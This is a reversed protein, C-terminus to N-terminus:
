VNAKIQSHVQRMGYVLCTLPYLYGQDPYKPLNELPPPQSFDVLTIDVDKPKVHADVFEICTWFDCPGFGYPRLAAQICETVGDDKHQTKYLRELTPPQGKFRSFDRSAVAPLVIRNALYM